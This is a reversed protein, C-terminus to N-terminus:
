YPKALLFTSFHSKSFDCIQRMKTMIQGIQIWVQCGQCGGGELCVEGSLICLYKLNSGNKTLNAGLEVVGFQAREAGRM